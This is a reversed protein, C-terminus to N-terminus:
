AALIRAWVVAWAAGGGEESAGGMSEGDDEVDDVGKEVDVGGSVRRQLDNAM